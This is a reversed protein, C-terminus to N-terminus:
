DLDGSVLIQPAPSLASTSNSPPSVRVVQVDIAPPSLPQGPAGINIVVGGGGSTNGQTPRLEPHAAEIWERAPRHDGRKAAVKSARKWDQLRNLSEGKMLAQTVAPTQKLKALTTSVTSQSCEMIAAIEPQTKGLDHLRLLLETDALTLRKYKSTLGESPSDTAITELAQESM